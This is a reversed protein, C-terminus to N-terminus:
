RLNRLRDHQTRFFSLGDGAAGGSAGASGPANGRGGRSTASGASGPVALNGLWRGFVAGFTRGRARRGSQTSHALVLEDITEQDEVRTILQLGDAGAGLVLVHSGIMVAHIEHTTGVTRSALIRIPSDEDESEAPVRRRLLSIVGYIAGIVMLLVLLMRLLDWVGFTDIGGDGANTDGEDDAGEGFVLTDEAPSEQAPRVARTEGASDSTPDPAAEAGPVTGDSGAEAGQSVGEPDSASDQSYVQQVSFLLVSM